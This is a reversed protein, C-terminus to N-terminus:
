AAASEHGNAASPASGHELAAAAPTGPGPLEHVESLNREIARTGRGLEDFKNAAQDITRKTAEVVEGFKRFEAKAAGLVKWVDSTRKEIALTRFGLRVSNLLASLTTPGTLIVRLETTLQEQLGPFRMAEAFLGETPLFM